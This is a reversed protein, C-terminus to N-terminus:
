RRRTRFRHEANTRPPYAVETEGPGAEHRDLLCLLLAAVAAGLGALCIGILYIWQFPNM